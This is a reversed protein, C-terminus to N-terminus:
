RATMSAACSKPRKKVPEIVAAPLTGGAFTKTMPAPTAPRAAIPAAVAEARDHAGVVRPRFDGVLDLRQAALEDGDIVLLLAAADAAVRLHHALAELFRLFLHERLLRLVDVDDDRRCENRALGRGLQDGFLHDLRHLLAADDDVHGASCPPLQSSVTGPSTTTLCPTVMM